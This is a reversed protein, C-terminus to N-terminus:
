GVVGISLSWRVVGISLMRGLSLGEKRRFGSGCGTYLDIGSSCFYHYQYDDVGGGEVLRSCDYYGFKYRGDRHEYRRGLRCGM